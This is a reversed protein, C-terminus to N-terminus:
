GRSPVWGTDLRGADYERLSMKADLAGLDKGAAQEELLPRVREADWALANTASWYAGNRLALDTIGARGETSERLQLQLAQMKHVLRNWRRPKAGTEIRSEHMEVLVARYRALLDGVDSEAVCARYRPKTRVPPQRLVRSGAGPTRRYPTTSFPVEM